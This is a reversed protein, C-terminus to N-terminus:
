LTEYRQALQPDGSLADHVQERQTDSLGDDYYYLTLTQENM